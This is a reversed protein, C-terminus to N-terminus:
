RSAKARLELIENAIEWFELSLAEAEFFAQHKLRTLNHDARELVYRDMDGDFGPKRCRVCDCHDAGPGAEFVGNAKWRGGGERLEQIFRWGSRRAQHAHTHCLHWERQGDHFTLYGNIDDGHHASPWECTDM